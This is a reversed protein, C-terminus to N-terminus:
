DGLAANLKDATAQDDALILDIHDNARVLRGAGSSGSFRGDPGPNSGHAWDSAWSGVAAALQSGNSTLWRDVFGRRGNPGGCRVTVFSDGNWGSAATSSTKDDLHEELLMAMEVEGVTGTRVSTCGTAAPVDPFAPATWGKNAVYLEPHLIQQSSVPPRAYMANVAAWGGASWRGQVFALGYTYPFRLSDLLFRPTRAIVSLDGGGGTQRREGASLYKQAWLDQTHVADGELLATLGTGEEQKDAKDIADAVDGYHFHQDTLAHDMEHAITFRTAPDLTGKSERVLLQKTKPDYFGLVLGAFLDDITKKFDTSNPILQLLKDTEGDGNLRDPHADRDDVAKLEKVFAANDAVRISLPGLWDLGRVSAVQAKIQDFQRALADPVATTATSATAPPATTSSTTSSSTTTARQGPAAVKLKKHSGDHVILAVVDAVLFVGLLVAVLRLPPSRM